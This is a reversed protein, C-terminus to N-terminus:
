KAGENWIAVGECSKEPCRVGKVSGDFMSTKILKPNIWFKHGCAPCTLRYRREMHTIRSLLTEESTSQLLRSFEQIGDPGRVFVQVGCPDCTLYPKDKKTMLVERPGTCVPCPFMLKRSM